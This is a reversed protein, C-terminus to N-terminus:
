LSANRDRGTIILDACRAERALEAALSMSTVMGRWIAAPGFVGRFEAEAAKMEQDIQQRDNEMIDDPVYGDSYLIRMPQCLAQGIVGAGLREALDRALALLATNKRGLEVHVMLTATNM